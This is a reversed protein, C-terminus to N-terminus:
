FVSFIIRNIQWQLLYNIDKGQKLPRSISQCIHASISSAILPFGRCAGWLRCWRVRCDWQCSARSALTSLSCKRYPLNPPMKDPYTYIFVLKDGLIPFFLLKFVDTVTLRKQLTNFLLYKFSPCASLHKWFHWFM